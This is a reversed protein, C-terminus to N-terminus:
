CGGDYYNSVYSKIFQIEGLRSLQLLFDIYDTSKVVDEGSYLQKIRRCVNKMYVKDSEYTKWSIMEHMKKVIGKASDAELIQDQWKVKWM